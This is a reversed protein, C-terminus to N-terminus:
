GHYAPSIRRNARIGKNIMYTYARGSNLSYTTFSRRLIMTSKVDKHGLLEQAARIDYGDELLQTAFSYRFTHPNVRKTMGLQLGAKRIAGQLVNEDLHYRHTVKTM